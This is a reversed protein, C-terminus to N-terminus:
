TKHGLFAEDRPLPLKRFGRLDPRYHTGRRFCVRAGRREAIATTTTYENGGNAGFVRKDCWVFVVHNVKHPPGYFALDLAEPTETPELESWLRAAGHFNRMDLGCAPCTSPYGAAVLGASVLGSCDFAAVGKAAWVYPKGEQELLWQTLAQRPTM